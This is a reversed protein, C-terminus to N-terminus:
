LIKALESYSNVVYFNKAANSLHNGIAVVQGGSRIEASLIAPM